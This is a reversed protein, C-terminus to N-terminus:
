DARFSRHCSSCVDALTKTRTKLTALDAGALASAFSKSEAVLQNANADFKARQQWIFALADTDIGAESGSGAPFWSSIQPAVSSIEQAASAIKAADPAGTKTQEVISKMAAGMKKFGQQRTHITAQASANVDVDAQAPTLATASYLSIVLLSVLSRARM